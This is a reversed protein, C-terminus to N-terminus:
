YAGRYCQGVEADCGLSDGGEARHLPFCITLLIVQQLHPFFFFLAVLLFGLAPQLCQGGMPPTKIM